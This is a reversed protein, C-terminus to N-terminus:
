YHPKQPYSLQTWESFLCKNIGQEPSPAPCPAPTVSILFPGAQSKLQLRNPFASWGCTYTSFWCTFSASPPPVSGALPSYCSLQSPKVSSPCQVQAKLTLLLSSPHPLSSVRWSLCSEQSKTEWSPHHHAKRDRRRDELRQWEPILGTTRSGHTSLITAWPPSAPSLSSHQHTM